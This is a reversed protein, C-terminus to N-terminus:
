DGLNKIILIKQCISIDLSTGNTRILIMQVEESYFGNFFRKM